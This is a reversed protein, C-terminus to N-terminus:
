PEPCPNSENMNILNKNLADLLPKVKTFTPTGSIPELGNKKVVLEKMSSEISKATPPTQEMKNQKTKSHLHTQNRKNM